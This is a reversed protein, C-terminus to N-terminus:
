SNQIGQSPLLLTFGPPNPSSSSSVVFDVGRVQYGVLLKHLVDLVSAAVLWQLPPTPLLPLLPFSLQCFYLRHHEREHSLVLPRLMFRVGGLSNLTCCHNTESYSFKEAPDWYNRAEFKIFMSNVLFCLYPVFGPTTRHAHGLQPPIPMDLSADMLTLFARKM